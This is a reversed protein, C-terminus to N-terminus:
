KYFIFCIVQFMKVLLGRWLLRGQIIGIYTDWRKQWKQFYWKFDEVKLNDLESTVNQQITPINDFRQGKLKM